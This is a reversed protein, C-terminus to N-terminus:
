KNAEGMADSAMGQAEKGADLAAKGASAYNGTAAMVAAKGLQYALKKFRNILKSIGSKQGAGDFFFSSYEQVHDFLKLIGWILVTMILFSTNMNSAAERLGSEQSQFDSNFLYSVASNAQLYVRLISVLFAVYICYFLIDFFASFIQHFLKKLIGRSLSPFIWYALYFPLLIVTLGLYLIAEVFSIPLKLMMEFLASFILIGALFAPISKLLFLQFALGMGSWLADYLLWVISQIKMPIEGFMADESIKDGTYLSRFQSSIASTDLVNTGTTKKSLEGLLDTFFDGFTSGTLGSSSYNSMSVGVSSPTALALESVGLFIDAIPQLFMKGAVDYLLIKGSGSMQEMGTLTYGPLGKVSSSSNPSDFDIYVTSSASGTGTKFSLLLVVIIVKFGVIVMESIDKKFNPTTPSLFWPLIKFMLWIPLVVKLISLTNEAILPLVADMTGKIANFAQMYMKCPWCNAQEPKFLDSNYSISSKCGNLLFLTFIYGWITWLRNKM